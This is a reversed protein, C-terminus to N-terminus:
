WDVFKDLKPILKTSFWSKPRNERIPNIIWAYIIFWLIMWIPYVGFIVAPYFWFDGYDSLKLCITALIIGTVIRALKNSKIVEIFMKLADIIKSM